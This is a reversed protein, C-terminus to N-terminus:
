CEFLLIFLLKAINFVNSEGKVFRMHSLRLQRKSKDVDDDVVFFFVLQLYRLNPTLNWKVDEVLRRRDM